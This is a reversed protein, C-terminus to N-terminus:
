PCGGGRYPLDLAQGLGDELYDAELDARMTVPNVTGGGGALRFSGTGTRSPDFPEQWAGKFYVANALVLLTDPPLPMPILDTVKGKTEREAWANIALRPADGGKAYDQPLVKAGFAREVDRLYARKLKVTGDPWVSGALSLEAGEGAAAALSGELSGWANLLEKGKYPIGLTTEFAAATDGAAGAYAMALVGAVTQPSILINGEGAAVRRYLDLGFATAGEAAEV